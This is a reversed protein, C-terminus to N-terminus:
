LQRSYLIYGIVLVLLGIAYLYIGARQEPPLEVPSPLPDLFAEQEATQCAVPASGAAADAQPLDPIAANASPGAAAAHLPAEGAHACCTLVRSLVM